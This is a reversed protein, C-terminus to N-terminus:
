GRQPTIDRETVSRFYRFFTPLDVATPAVLWQYVTGSVFSLYLTAFNEIDVDARVRGQEIGERLWAEMDKRYSQHNRALQGRIESDGGISEYWIIYGGRMYGRYESLFNELADMAAFVADLGQKGETYRTLQDVWARNFHKLLEQLFAEKSGFRYNALGRSYGAQECIDKLTTRNAGQESILQMAANFMRTDSLATREAQTLRPGQRGRREPTPPADTATGNTSRDPGSVRPRPM